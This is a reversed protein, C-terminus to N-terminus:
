PFDKDVVLNDLRALVGHALARRQRAVDTRADLGEQPHAYNGALAGSPPALGAVRLHRQPGKADPGRALLRPKRRLGLGVGQDGCRLRHRMEHRPVPQWGARWILADNCVYRLNLIGALAEAVYTKGAGSTGIVCIREGLRAPM